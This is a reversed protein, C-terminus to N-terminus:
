RRRRSRYVTLAALNGVLLAAALGQLTPRLGTPLVPASDPVPSESAGPSPSPPPPPPLAATLPDAETEGPPDPPPEPREPAPGEPAPPDPAPAADAPPAPVPMPEPAPPVQVPAPEEVDPAPAPPEVPPPVEPPPPPIAPPPAPQTAEPEPAAVGMAAAVDVRGLGAGIPRSTAILRDRIAAGELGQRRLMAAAASVVPTAFSTGDARAYGGPGTHSSVMGVGPAFLTRADANSGPWVVDDPDTAGVVLVPVDERYPTTPLAENGAAAVVVVGRRDAERIAEEVAASVLPDSPPAGPEGQAGALSLNVVAAGNDVAFRIGEAIVDATGRGDADLVRVPMVLSEPAVAAVGVGNGTAAAILGAVLTGHGNEDDPPTGPDVLDVGNVTRGVLDPHQLAVGTDLVAVIVNTGKGVPWSEPARIRGLHWQVEALPDDSPGAALLLAALVVPVLARLRGVGGPDCAAGAPTVLQVSPPAGAGTM